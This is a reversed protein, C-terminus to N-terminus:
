ANAGADRTFLLARARELLVRLNQEAALQLADDFSVWRVAATLNEPRAEDPRDTELLFRLDAHEHAPEDSRAPVPVVVVHILESAVGRDGREFPRLDSLGTEEAAERLAIALPDWEGADGHGGVQMFRSFREHWRLLVRGSAAHAVIASATLHVPESRSWPDAVSAVLDVIRRLDAEEVHGFPAYVQFTRLLQARAEPASDGRGVMGAM